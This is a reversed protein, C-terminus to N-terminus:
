SRKPCVLERCLRQLEPFPQYTVGGCQEPTPSIIQTMRGGFYVAAVTKIGTYQGNGDKPNYRLCVIYRTTGAVPKLMPEAISADRINTPDQLSGHITELIDPKYNVPLVNEVPKDERYLCAGLAVALAAVALAKTSNRTIWSPTM